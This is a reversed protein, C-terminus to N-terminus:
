SSLEPHIVVLDQLPYRRYEPHDPVAYTLYKDEVAGNWAVVLTRNRSLGQLLRLPVQRLSIDFLMEINDLLVLDTGEANIIEALVRGVQLARQRETLDLLHRALEVNVNIIPAGTLEHVARLAASKGTNAPTAVVVLRYYLEHTQSVHSMIEDTLLTSNRQLGRQFRESVESNLFHPHNRTSYKKSADLALRL